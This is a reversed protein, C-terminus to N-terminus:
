VLDITETVADIVEKMTYIKNLKVIEEEFFLGFEEFEGLVKFQQLFANIKEVKSTDAQFSIFDLAEKALKDGTPRNVTKPKAVFETVQSGEVMKSVKAKLEDLSDAKKGKFDKGKAMQAFTVIYEAHKQATVFEANFVPNKESNSLYGGNALQLDAKKLFQKSM